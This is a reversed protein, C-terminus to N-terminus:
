GLRQAQQRGLRRFTSADKHARDHRPFPPENLQDGGIVGGDGVVAVVSTVGVPECNSRFSVDVCEFVGGAM